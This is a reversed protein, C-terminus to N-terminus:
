LIVINVPFQCKDIDVHCLLETFAIQGATRRVHFHRAPQGRDPAPQDRPRNKILLWIEITTVIVFILFLRLFM